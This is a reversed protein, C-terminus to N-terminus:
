TFGYVGTLQLYCRDPHKDWGRALGVRLYVHQGRLGDRMAAAAADPALGSNHLLDLQKRFALDVVALQYGVGAADRFRLRYDWRGREPYHRYFVDEIESAKITGLSRAGQGSIVYRGWGGAQEGHLEADFIDRVAPSCTRELLAVREPETLFRRVRHGRELTRRDETHPEHSGKPAGAIRLEVVAFPAVPGDGARQLWAEDPGSRAVVPRVAGGDELYGGVCVRTGEM